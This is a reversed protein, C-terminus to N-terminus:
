NKSNIFICYYSEGMKFQMSQDNAPITWDNSGFENLWNKKGNSATYAGACNHYNYTIFPLWMAYLVSNNAPAENKNIILCAVLKDRYKTPITYYQENQPEWIVSSINLAGTNAGTPVNVNVTAKSIAKGQTPLIDFSGNHTTTVIREELPLAGPVDVIVRCSSMAEGKSAKIVWDGNETFPTLTNDDVIKLGNLTDIADIFDNSNFDFQKTNYPASAKTKIKDAIAKIKGDLAVSDVAKDYAM